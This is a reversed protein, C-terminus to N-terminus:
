TCLSSVLVPIRGDSSSGGLLTDSDDNFASTDGKIPTVAPSQTRRLSSVRKISPGSVNVSVTPKRLGYQAPTMKALSELIFRMALNFQTLCFFEEGALRQEPPRFTVIYELNSPLHRPRARLIVYVLSSLSTDADTGTGGDLAQVVKVLWKVCRTVCELKAKPSRFSRHDDLQQVNAIAHHWFSEDAPAQEENLDLHVPRLWQLKM